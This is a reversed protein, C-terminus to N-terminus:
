STTFSADRDEKTVVRADPGLFVLGGHEDDVWRVVYPPAGDPHRLEM